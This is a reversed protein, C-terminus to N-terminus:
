MEVVISCLKMTVTFLIKIKKKQFTLNTVKGSSGIYRDEWALERHIFSRTFSHIAFTILKSCFFITYFILSLARQLQITRHQASVFGDCFIFVVFRTHALSLHPSIMQFKDNDDASM